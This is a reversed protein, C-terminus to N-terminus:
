HQGRRKRGSDKTQELAKIKKIKFIVELIGGMILICTLVLRLVKLIFDETPNEDELLKLILSFDLQYRFGILVIVVILAGILILYIILRTKFEM